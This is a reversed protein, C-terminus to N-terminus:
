KCIIQNDYKLNVTSYRKEASNPLINRYFAELKGFKVEIADPPGFIVHQKLGRMYLIIDGNDAIDIQETAEAWYPHESIFGSLSIIDELWKLQARNLVARCSDAAIPIAGTVIPVDTHRYVPFLFGNEDSYYSGGDTIFRVVPKRQSLVISIHRSDKRFAEAHAVEGFEMVATELNHLNISDCRGSLNWQALREKVESSSILSNELSDVVVVDLGSFMEQASHASVLRHVYFFYAGFLGGSLICAIVTIIIRKLM